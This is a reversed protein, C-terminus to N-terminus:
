QQETAHVSLRLNPYETDHITDCEKRHHFILLNPLVWVFYKQNLYSKPCFYLVGWTQGSRSEFEHGGPWSLVNWTVLVGASVVQGNTVWKLLFTSGCSRLPRLHNWICPSESPSICQYNINKTWTCSLVSTDCVGLKVQGPKSSIVELEHCYMAHWCYKKLSGCAM